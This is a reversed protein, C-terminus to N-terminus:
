PLQTITVPRTEAKDGKASADCHSLDIEGVACLRLFGGPQQLLAIDRSFV